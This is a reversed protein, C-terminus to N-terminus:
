SRQSAFKEMRRVIAMAGARNTRAKKSLISWCGSLKTAQRGIQHQAQPLTYTEQDGQSAEEQGAALQCPNLITDHVDPGILVSCTSWARAYASHWLGHTPAGSCRMPRLQMPTICALAGDEFGVTRYTCLRQIRWDGWM